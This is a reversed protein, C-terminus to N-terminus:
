DLRGYCSGSVDEVIVGSDKWIVVHRPGRDPGPTERIPEM